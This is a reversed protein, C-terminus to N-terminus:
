PFLLSLDADEPVIFCYTEHRNYGEMPVDLYVRYHDYYSYGPDGYGYLDEWTCLGLLWSYLEEKVPIVNAGYGWTEPYAIDSTKVDEYLGGNYEYVAGEYYGGYEKYLREPLELRMMEKGTFCYEAEPYFGRARLFRLTETFSAYIPLEVNCETQADAYYEDEKRISDNVAHITLMAVPLTEYKERLTLRSLESRLITLFEDREGKGLNMEQVNMANRVTVGKIFNEPMTYIDSYHAEKYERSEFIPAFLEEQAAQAHYERYVEKGNKLRYAVTVTTYGSLSKGAEQRDWYYENDRIVAKLYPYVDEMDTLKMIEAEDRWRITREDCIFGSRYNDFAAMDIAVSAIKKEKPLYTDYGFVDYRMILVFAVAVVGCAAMSLKGAFCERIDFYFVSQILMHSLVVGLLVGFVMWGVNSYEDAMGYFFMGVLAGAMLEISCRIIPKLISFAIAKGAGESARKRYLLLALAILVVTFVLQQWLVPALSREGGVATMYFYGPSLFRLTHMRETLADAMHSYTHFFEVEFSNYFFLAMPTLGFMWGSVAFFVVVNGVFIVGLILTTYITLYGLLHVAFGRMVVTFVIPRMVGAFTMILISVAIMVLYPVLYILVGNIYRIAFQTEKKVPLAHFFDVKKKSFLYGFGTLACITAGVITVLVMWPSGAIMPAALRRAFTEMAINGYADAGSIKMAIYIPVPLLFVIAALVITWLRQKLDQKMLSFFSSRSTM